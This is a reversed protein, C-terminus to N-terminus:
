FDNEPPPALSYFELSPPQFMNWIEQWYGYHTYEFCPINPSSALTLNSICPSPSTQAERKFNENYQSSLIM